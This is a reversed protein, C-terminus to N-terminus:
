EYVLLFVGPKGVSVSARIRNALWLKYDDLSRNDNTLSGYNKGTNFPPDGIVCDVQVDLDPLISLCDGNYISIGNYDYYPSIM